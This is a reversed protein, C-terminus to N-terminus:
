PFSSSAFSLLFLGLTFFWEVQIVFIAVEVIMHQVTRQIRTEKRVLYTIVVLSHNTLGCLDMEGGSEAFPWLM